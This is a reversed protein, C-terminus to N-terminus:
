FLSQLVPSSFMVEPGPAAVRRASIGLDGDTFGEWSVLYGRGGPAAAASVTRSSTQHESIRFSDGVPNGTADLHVGVVANQFDGRWLLWAVLFGGDASAVAPLAHAREDESQSIRLEPGLLAGDVGVLQGFVRYHLPEEIPGHWVALYQGDGDWAVAPARQDGATSSNIRTASGVPEAAADLHLAFVDTGDTGDGEAEWLVLLGDGGAAVVPSGASVGHGGALKVDGTLAVGRANFRRGFIGDRESLGPQDDSGSWVVFFGGDPTSAVQPGFQLGRRNRNIRFRRSLPEGTASFRQALIDQDLTTWDEFFPAARLYAKEETWFVYFEGSDLYLVQPSTHAFITGEGPNNDFIQNGALLTQDAARGTAFYDGPFLRASIGSRVDQWFVGFAGDPSYAAVSYRQKAQPGTNVRFESDGPQAAAPLALAAVLLLVLLAPLSRRLPPCPRVSSPVRHM